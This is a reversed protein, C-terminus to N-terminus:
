LLEMFNQRGHKAEGEPGFALLGNASWLIGTAILHEVLRALKDPEMAAFAPVDAVWEFWAQQGIGREQLVLAMLQQAAIHFPKPPAIVPEM